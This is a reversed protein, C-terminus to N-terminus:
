EEEEAKEEEQRKSQAEGKEAAEASKKEDGADHSLKTTGADSRAAHETSATRAQQTMKGSDQAAAGGGSQFAQVAGKAANQFKVPDGKLGSTPAHNSPSEARDPSAQKETMHDHEEAKAKLADDGEGAPRGEGAVDVKDEPIRYHPANPDPMRVHPKFKEKPAPAHHADKGPPSTMWVLLPAFVLLSGVAWPVDSSPKHHATAMNAAADKVKSAADSATSAARRNSNVAASSRLQRFSRTATHRLMITKRIQPTTGM